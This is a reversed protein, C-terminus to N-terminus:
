GDEGEYLLDAVARLVQRADHELPSRMLMYTRMIKEKDAGWAADLLPGAREYDDLIAGIEVFEDEYFVAEDGQRASLCQADLWKRLEKIRAANIM